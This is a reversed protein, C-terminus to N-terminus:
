YIRPKRKEEVRVPRARPTLLYLGVMWSVSLALFPLACFFAAQQGPSLM